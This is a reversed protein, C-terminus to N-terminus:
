RKKNKENETINFHHISVKQRIQPYIIQDFIVIFYDFFADQEYNSKHLRMLYM